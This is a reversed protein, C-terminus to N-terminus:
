RTDRVATLSTTASASLGTDTTGTVTITALSPGFGTSNTLYVIFRPALSTDNSSLVGNGTPGSDVTYSWTVNGGPTPDLDFYRIATATGGESYAYGSGTVLVSLRQWVKYAGVWVTNISTSGIKIDRIDSTGVRIEM